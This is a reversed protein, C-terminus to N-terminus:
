ELKRVTVNITGVKCKLGDSERIYGDRGTKQWPGNALGNMSPPRDFEFRDGIKLDRFRLM